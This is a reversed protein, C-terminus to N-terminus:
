PFRLTKLMLEFYVSTESTMSSISACDITITNGKWNHMFMKHILRLSGEFPFSMHVYYFEKDAIFTSGRKLVYANDYSAAWLEVLEANSSKELLSKASVTKYEAPLPRVTVIFSNGKDDVIKADTGPLYIEEKVRWGDPIAFSYGYKASKFVTQGTLNSIIFFSVFFLISTKMLYTM